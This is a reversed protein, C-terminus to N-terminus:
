PTARPTSGCAPSSSPTTTSRRGASCAAWLRPFPSQIRQTPVPRPLVYFDTSQPSAGVYKKSLLLSRVDLGAQGIAYYGRRACRFELTRTIKQRAGLAFVDRRYSRDSVATNAEDSFRLGKDMHFDIEVVPLPLLKDNVVVEALLATDDEVAYEEQFSVKVELGKSWLRDYLFSQLFLLAALLLLIGLAAM